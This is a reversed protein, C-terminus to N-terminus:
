VQLFINSFLFNSGMCLKKNRLLKVALNRFAKHISRYTYSQKTLQYMIERECPALFMIIHFESLLQKWVVNFVFFFQYDSVVTRKQVRNLGSSLSSAVIGPHM